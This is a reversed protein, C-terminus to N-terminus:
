TWIYVYEGAIEIRLPATLLTAVPVYGTVYYYFEEKDMQRKQRKAM